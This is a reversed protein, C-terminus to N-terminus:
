SHGIVSCGGNLASTNWFSYRGASEVTTSATTVTVADTSPAARDVGVVAWTIMISQEPEIAWGPVFIDSAIRAVAAAM